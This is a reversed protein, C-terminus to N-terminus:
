TGGRCPEVISVSRSYAPTLKCRDDDDAIQGIQDKSQKTWKSLSRHDCNQWGDVEHMSCDEQLIITFSVCVLLLLSCENSMNSVNKESM